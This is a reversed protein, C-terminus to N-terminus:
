GMDSNCKPKIGTTTDGENEPPLVEGAGQQETRIGADGEGEDGQGQAGDQVTHEENVVNCYDECKSRVDAHSIMFCPGMGM